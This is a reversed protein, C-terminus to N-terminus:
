SFLLFRTSNRTIIKVCYLQQCIKRDRKDYRDASSTVSAKVLTLGKLVVFLILLFVVDINKQKEISELTRANDLCTECAILYWFTSEWILLYQRQAVTQNFNTPYGQRTELNNM